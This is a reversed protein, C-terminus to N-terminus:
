EPGEGELFNSLRARHWILGMCRQATKLVEREKLTLSEPPRKELAVVDGYDGKELGLRQLERETEEIERETTELESRAWGFRDGVDIKLFERTDVFNESLVIEDCKSEELLRQWPFPFKWFTRRENKNTLPRSGWFLTIRASKDIRWPCPVEVKWPDITSFDIQRPLLRALDPHHKMIGDKIGESEWARVKEVAAIWAVVLENFVKKADDERLFLDLGDTDEGVFTMDIKERTLHHTSLPGVIPQFTYIAFPEKDLREAARKIVCIQDTSLTKKKGSDTRYKERVAWVAGAEELAKTPWDAKRANGGKVRGGKGGEIPKSIVKETHAWKKITNAPIRKGTLQEFREILQKLEM